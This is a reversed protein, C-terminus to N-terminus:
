WSGGGGGGGVGGGSFGGSSFGSSGSTSPPTSTLTGSTSVTFSDIASSFALFTFANSSVYWSSTDPPQDDLGSFARAWKETAGFVIAYPLYESFLNKQEAFRAREKESEDIFRRFGETRRLVATGKATRQPMWYAGFTLLIGAVVLPIGLLAAHTFAALAITLGVGLLLVLVGLCGWQARAYSPPRAFWGQKKADEMLAKQVKQMRAAFKQRLDSLQVEGGDEFLGNMLEREYPKLEDGPEKKKTLKWDAKHTWGTGEIEEITLYQRVALDVITATVDLPNAAFDILTGIQGPRLHDPPVFEVPTEEHGVLPVREDSGTASGFAADVPSGVYRRDRGFRYQVLAWGGVVVLLLLGGVGLTFPTLSFSRALSFREELIPKPAPVFGKPFAVTVTLGEFSSLDAQSFTASTGSAEAISCPQTSEFPGAFCNVKTIETPAEARVVADDIPVPWNTTIASLYLEDHDRFGNLAGKLTYTIEYTHLGTITRDADGIKIRKLGGDISEISYDAPTGESARVSLVDLPFIRDTDSKKTYNVRVPIDRLIGHHPVVGFDYDITEQIRVLGSAEITADVDYREIHEGVGAGAPTPLLCLALLVTTFVLLLRRVIV